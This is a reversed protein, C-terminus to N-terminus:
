TNINNNVNLHNIDVTATSVSPIDDVYVSDSSYGSFSCAPASKSALVQDPLLSTRENASDWAQHYDGGRGRIRRSLSSGVVGLHEKIDNHVDSVDWMARFFDCVLYLFNKFRIIQIFLNKIKNRVQICGVM